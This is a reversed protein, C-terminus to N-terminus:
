RAPAHRMYNTFSEFNPRMSVFGPTTINDVYWGYSRDFTGSLTGCDSIFDEFLAQVEAPDPLTPSRAFLWNSTSTYGGDVDHPIGNTASVVGRKWPLDGVGIGPIPGLYESGGGNSYVGCTINFTVSKWVFNTNPIIAKLRANCVGAVMEAFIAGGTDVEVRMDIRACPRWTNPYVYAPPDLVHFASSHRNTTWETFPEEVNYEGNSRVSFAYAYRDNVTDQVWCSYYSVADMDYGVWNMLSLARGMDNLANTSWWNQKHDREFPFIKGTFTNVFNTVTYLVSYWTQSPPTGTSYNTTSMTVGSALSVYNTWAFQSTDLRTVSSTAWGDFSGDWVGSGTMFSNSPVLWYLWVLNFYPFSPTDLGYRLATPIAARIANPFQHNANPFFGVTNTDVHAESNTVYVYGGGAPLLTGYLIGTDAYEPNGISSGGSATSTWYQDFAADYNDLTAINLDNRFILDSGGPMENVLRQGSGMLIGEYEYLGVVQAPTVVPWGCYITPNPDYVVYYWVGSVVDTKSSTFAWTNDVVIPTSTDRYRYVNEGYATLFNAGEVYVEFIDIGAFARHRELIGHMLYARDQSRPAQIGTAPRDPWTLVGLTLISVVTAVTRGVVKYTFM